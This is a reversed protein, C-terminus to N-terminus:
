PCMEEKQLFRKGSCENKRYVGSRLSPPLPMSPWLFTNKKARVSVMQFHEGLMERCCFRVGSSKVEFCWDGVGTNWISISVCTQWTLSTATTIGFTQDQFVGYVWWPKGLYSIQSKPKVYLTLIETLEKIKRKCVSVEYSPIWLELWTPPHVPSAEM